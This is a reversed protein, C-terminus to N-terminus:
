KLRRHLFARSGACFPAGELDFSGQQHQSFCLNDPLPECQMDRKMQGMATIIRRSILSTSSAITAHNPPLSERLGPNHIRDWVRVSTLRLALGSAVKRWHACMALREFLSLIPDVVKTSDVRHSRLSM